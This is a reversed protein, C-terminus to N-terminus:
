AIFIGMLIIIGGVLILVSIPIGSRNIKKFNM